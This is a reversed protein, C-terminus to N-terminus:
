TDCGYKKLFERIASDNVPDGWAFCVMGEASGIQSVLTDVTKMDGWIQMLKGANRIKRYVEPWETIGPRGTGPVWQIGKLEKISLLSDLHPLEGIGDLHYFPNVLRKCSAVLEPKVFEEFMDPGIMYCFDCQLMYSPAESYIQAWSTYGPNMPKLVANIEDFCKWWLRHAEWTQRKVEEPHDYLDLLLQENPRFTSVVDLNGGLDTMSMQVLGQWREMAVRCIDKVRKFWVNDPDYAMRLEALEMEKRPHFWVTDPAPKAVAGIFAAIVGPGFNPWVAPFSDGYFEMGSLEYDWRDVIDEASVSLNYVDESFGLGKLRPAPRGPDRNGAPMHILPRKLKGDWWLRADNRVKAWREENFRIAM